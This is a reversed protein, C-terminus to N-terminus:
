SDSGKGRERSIKGPQHKRDAASCGASRPMATEAIIIDKVIALMGIKYSKGSGKSCLLLGSVGGEKEAAAMGTQHQKPTAETTGEVALRCGDRKLLVVSPNNFAKEDGVEM